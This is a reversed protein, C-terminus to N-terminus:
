STKRCEAVNAISYAGQAEVMHSLAVKRNAMRHGHLWRRGKVIDIWGMDAHIRIHRSKSHNLIMGHGDNLAIPEIETAIGNRDDDTQRRRGACKGIAMSRKNQTNGGIEHNATANKHKNKQEEPNTNWINPDIDGKLESGDCKNKSARKTSVAKRAM